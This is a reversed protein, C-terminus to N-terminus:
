PRNNAVGLSNDTAQVLAATCFILAITMMVVFWQKRM